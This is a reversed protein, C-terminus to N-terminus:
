IFCRLNWTFCASVVCIRLYFVASKLYFMCKGCVEEFSVCNWWASSLCLIYVAPQLRCCGLRSANHRHQLSLDPFNENRIGALICVTTASTKRLCKLRIELYSSNPLSRKRRRNEFEYDVSLQIIQRKMIQAASLTTLYFKTGHYQFPLDRVAGVLPTVDNKDAEGHGRLKVSRLITTVIYENKYIRWCLLSIFVVRNWM